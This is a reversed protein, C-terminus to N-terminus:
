GFLGFVADQLLLSGNNYRYVIFPLIKVRIGLLLLPFLAKKARMGLLLLPFLAKKVEM